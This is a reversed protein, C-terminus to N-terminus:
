ILSCAGRHHAVRELAQRRRHERGGSGRGDHGCMIALPFNWPPIIVGVGLPLYRLQNRDRRCSYSRSRNAWQAADAPRLVRPLRHGRRHRSGSGGVNKGAELVMWSNFEFKRERLLAAARMLIEVRRHVHTASWDPFIAYAQEIAQQALEPTAKQHLGVVEAPASPNRSVFTQGAVRREGGILLQYERGLQQRVAALAREMGARNEPQSFDTYAENRFPPLTV